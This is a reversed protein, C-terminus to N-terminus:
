ISPTGSVADQWVVYMAGTRSDIAIHAPAAPDVWPEVEAEENLRGTNDHGPGACGVAFPSPHAHL